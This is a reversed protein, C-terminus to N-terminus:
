LLKVTPMIGDIDVEDGEEDAAETVTIIGDVPADKDRDVSIAVPIAWANPLESRIIMTAIWSLKAGTELTGVSTINSRLELGAITMAPQRTAEESINLNDVNTEVERDMGAVVLGFKAQGTSDDADGTITVSTVLTDM